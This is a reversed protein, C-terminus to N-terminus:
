RKELVEIDSNQYITILQKRNIKLQPYLPNSKILYYYKAPIKELNEPIMRSIYGARDKRQIGTLDLIYPTSYYVQKGTYVPM